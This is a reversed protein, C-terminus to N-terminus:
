GEQPPDDEPPLRIRRESPEQRPRYIIAVRGITTILEGGARDSLAQAQRAREERDAALRVKILEHAELANDVETAIAATLGERGIQVVPDLGHALRRLVKRQRGTLPSM